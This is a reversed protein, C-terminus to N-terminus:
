RGTADPLVLVKGLKEGQPSAVVLNLDTGLRARAIAAALDEPSEIRFDNIGVIIDGPELGALDALSSARIRTVMAGGFREPLGRRVAEEAPAPAVELGLLALEPSPYPVWQGPLAREFEGVSVPLTVRRGERILEVETTQGPRLRQIAYRFDARSFTPRGDVSLIVDGPQLGALSAPSAQRVTRVVMGRADAALWDPYLDSLAPSLEAAEVGLYGRRVRGFEILQEAVPRAISTPTAFGLGVSGADRSPTKIATNIGIVEGRLNVLPGGSNGTNIAADTQIFSEWAEDELIGARRGIASVIGATVTQDLGLPSGVGIVWDGVRMRESDGLTAARLPESLARPDIRVVALDTRPDVGVLEADATEGGALEVKLRQARTVVHNNTLVFGDESIVVGSGLREQTVRQPRVSFWDQRVLRTQTEQAYISVVSPGIVEAAHRFAASLSDAREIAEAPSEVQAPAHIAIPLALAAAALISCRRM